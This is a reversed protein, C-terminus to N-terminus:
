IGEVSPNVSWKSILAPMGCGGPPSMPRGTTTSTATTCEKASSSTTMKIKKFSRLVYDEAMTMSLGCALCWAAVLTFTLRKIFM